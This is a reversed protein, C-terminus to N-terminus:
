SVGGPGGATGTSVAPQDSASQITSRSAATQTHAAGCRVQRASAVSM